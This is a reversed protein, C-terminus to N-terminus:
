PNLQPSTSVSLRPLFEDSAPLIVLDHYNGPPSRWLLAFGWGHWRWLSLYRAAGDPSAEVVALEQFGDGDLDAIEVEQLPSEVASGGWLIRYIGGRYGLVFPHSALDGNPSPKELALVLEYRGDDNPDGFALDKVQWDSPSRWALTGQQYIEVEQGLRRILEPTGDGTLDEAGSWFLGNQHDQPVKIAHCTASSCYFGLREVPLIRALLDAAQDLDMWAPRPATWLPLAQVALLGQTDFLLRLALGQSTDDWGQDFVFNGLSYAVIQDPVEDEPHIVELDQVVHPHSGLVIDAGAELLQEALERQALNPHRQYEQGWHLLLILVDAKARATELALALDEHDGPPIESWALFGFKLGNIERVHLQNSLLPQIGAAQLHEATEVLGPTGADLAHNNALGLLDFGALRLSLAASTPILLSSSIEDFAQSVIVGELNGVVLDAKQLEEAVLDFIGPHGALGRGPMVDGVAIIDALPVGESPNEGDRSYVWSSPDPEQAAQSSGIGTLLLNLLFLFFILGLKGIRRSLHPHNRQMSLGPLKGYVVM